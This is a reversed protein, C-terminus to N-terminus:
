MIKRSLQKQISGYLVHLPRIPLRYQCAVLVMKTFWDISDVKRLLTGFDNALEFQHLLWCQRIFYRIRISLAHNEAQNRNLKFAKQCIAFSSALHIKPKQGWSNKVVRRLMTIDDLYAFTHDRAMRIWCDFDEYSLTEDYGGLQDLIAKRFMTTPPCIFDDWLLREYVEGTPVQRIAKGHHNTAFYKGIEIGKENILCANSYVLACSEGQQEFVAVQKEIRDNFLVDDAALDIVYKGKALALAKNLTRCNGQNSDNLVLQIHPHDQAFREIIARSGDTSADDAIILEIASYTQSLVSQLAQQVYAAQNYCLCIVSVLPHNTTPADSM